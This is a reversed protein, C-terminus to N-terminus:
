RYGTRQCFVTKKKSTPWWDVYLGSSRHTYRHKSGGDLKSLDWEKYSGVVPRAAAKQAQNQKSRFKQEEYFAHEGDEGFHSYKSYAFGTGYLDRPIKRSAICGPSRSRSRSRRPVTASM